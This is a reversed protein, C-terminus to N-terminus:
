LDRDRSCAWLGDYAGLNLKGRALLSHLLPDKYHGRLFIAATEEEMCENGAFWLYTLPGDMTKLFTSGLGKVELGNSKWRGLTKLGSM